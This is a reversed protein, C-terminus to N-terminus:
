SIPICFEKIVSELLENEFPTKSSTIDTRQINLPFNANNDFIPSM